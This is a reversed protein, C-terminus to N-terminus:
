RRLVPNLLHDMSMWLGRSHHYFLIPLLFPAPAGWILLQTLPITAALPVTFAAILLESIILNIAMASSFYGEEREYVFGCHPCREYMRFPSRFL